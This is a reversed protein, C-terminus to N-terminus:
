CFECLLYGAFIQIALQKTVRSEKDKGSKFGHLLQSGSQLFLSKFNCLQRLM